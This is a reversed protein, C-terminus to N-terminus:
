RPAEPRSAMSPAAAALGPVLHVRLRVATRGAEPLAQAEAAGEVRDGIRPAAGAVDLAATVLPGADLRVLAVGAEGTPTRLVTFTELSGRLAVQRPALDRGGCSLCRYQRAPVHLYGCTACQSGELTGAGAQAHTTASGAQSAAISM